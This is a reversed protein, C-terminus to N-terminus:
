GLAYALAHGSTFDVGLGRFREYLESDYTDCLAELDVRRPDADWDLLLDVLDRRRLRLATDLPFEPEAELDYGNALLLLVLSHDQRELAIELATRVRRREFPSAPPLQLPRVAQIWCEVDYLRGERCFRLLAELAGAESAFRAPPRPARPDPNARPDVFTASVDSGFCPRSSGVSTAAGLTGRPGVDRWVGFLFVM